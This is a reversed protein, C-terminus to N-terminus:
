VRVRAAAGVGGVRWSHTVNSQGDRGKNWNRSNYDFFSNYHYHRWFGAVGTGLAYPTQQRNAAAPLTPTAACEGDLTGGGGSCTCMVWLLLGSVGGRQTQTEGVGGRGPRPDDRM